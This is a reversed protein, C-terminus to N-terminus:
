KDEKKPPIQQRIYFMYASRLLKEDALLRTRNGQYSSHYVDTFFTEVFNKAAEMKRKGPPYKEDAIRELYEFVDEAIVAKLAADDFALSRQNLKQFIEDLPMMLSNKKLSKGRLGGQWAIEALRQLHTSLEAMSSGGKNDALSKIDSFLQQALRIEIWEPSSASSERVRAEILKEATYYIHLPGNAMTQVLELMEDRKNTTRVSNYIRHLTQAQQYLTQLPRKGEPKSYDSFAAYGNHEILGRCSLAVNDLYLDVEPVFPAVPSETLMVRLGWHKQMVLANWLAFLFRQSDNDGAPNIPFILRNGVTNRPARPMYLGFPHPKKKKTQTAFNPSVGVTEDLMAAHTDCWLARVAIDSHRISDIENRIAQLYSAPLFSYPFFHLYMTKEGRVEEYNLREVLFQLQCLRCINKKPEGPGGRLRNSFTQVKIDSRVDNTMWKGTPFTTSCHVCQKHQTTTYQTLHDTFATQQTLQLNGLTGFLAYRALYEDFLDVKDDEIALSQMQESGDAEIQLYIAEHNLDIHPMLVYPRDQRPDFFALQERVDPAVNFLNYIHEWADPIIKSFHTNLFIYYTRILEGDRLRDTSTPLLLDKETLLQRIFVATEGEAEGMKELRRTTRDVVKGLLEDRKMNRTQVRSHMINWLKPFPIHLELCKPDVKIGHIGSKIFSDFEQGTLNNILIATEGAIKQRLGVNVQFDKGQPVLYAVGDPYYLLPTLGAAELVTVVAHHIMNTLTGRNEALRHLYFTYQVDDVVSNLHSLFSSKHVREDLSHSLDLIDVARILDLLRDIPTDAQAMLSLGGSHAGHQAAIQTIQTLHQAYEPFFEDLSFKQIQQKFNDPIAIKAYASGIYDPDKNIDHITFVTFLLRTEWESLPLLTRLSELVMIGNLVHMYLSEGRKGGHQAHHKYTLFAKNNAVKELYEGLVSTEPVQPGFKLKNPDFVSM